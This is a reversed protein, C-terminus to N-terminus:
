GVVDGYVDFEALVLGFLGLFGVLGLVVICM